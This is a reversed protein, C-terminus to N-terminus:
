SKKISRAEIEKQLIKLAEDINDTIVENKLRIVKLGSKELEFTRNEDHEKNEDSDHINGDIEIVLKAEHCYFDVIFQGIPHQRRFIIGSLQKKRIHNWLITESPTMTNRLSRARKIIERRSGYYFDRNISKGLYATIQFMLLWDSALLGEGPARGVPLCAGGLHLPSPTCASGESMLFYPPLHTKYMLGNFHFFYYSKIRKKRGGGEQPLPNPPPAM